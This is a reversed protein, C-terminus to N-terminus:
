NFNDAQILSRFGKILKVTTKAPFM